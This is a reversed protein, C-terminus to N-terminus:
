DVSAGIEAGNLEHETVGVDTRGFDVRVNGALPQAGHMPLVMRPRSRTFSRAPSRTRPDASHRRQAEDGRADVFGRVGTGGYGRM